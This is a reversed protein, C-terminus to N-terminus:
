AAPVPTAGRPGTQLAKDRGGARAVLANQDDKARRDVQEPDLMQALAM